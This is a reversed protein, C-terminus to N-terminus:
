NTLENTCETIRNYPIYIYIGQRTFADDDSFLLFTKKKYRKDSNNTTKM